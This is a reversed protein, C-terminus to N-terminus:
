ARQVLKMQDHDFDSERYVISKVGSFKGPIASMSKSRNKIM